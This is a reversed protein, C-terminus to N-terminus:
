FKLVVFIKSNSFPVWGFEFLNGMSEGFQNIWTSGRPFDFGGQAGGDRDM